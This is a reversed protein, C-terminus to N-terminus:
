ARSQDPLPSVYVHDGRRKARVNTPAVSAGSDDRHELWQEAALFEDAEFFPYDAIDLNAKFVHITDLRLAFDPDVSDVVLLANM